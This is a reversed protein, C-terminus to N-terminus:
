TDGGDSSEDSSEDSGADSLRRAPRELLPGLLNIALGLVAAVVALPWFGLGTALGISAALWLGAGTTLNRIRGRSLVIMGAALFAVGNTTAEVLRIPDMRLRDGAGEFEHVLHLTVLAFSAAALGLLMHTKLGAARHKAEREYGILACLVVAGALRLLMLPLPLALSGFFEDALAAPLM